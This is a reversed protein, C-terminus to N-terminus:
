VRESMLYPKSCHLTRTYSKPVANTVFVRLSPGSHRCFEFRRCEASVSSSLEFFMPPLTFTHLLTFSFRDTARTFFASGHTPVKLMTVRFTILPRSECHVLEDCRAVIRQELKALRPAALKKRIRDMSTTILKRKLITLVIEFM